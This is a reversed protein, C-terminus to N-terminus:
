NKNYLPLITFYNFINHFKRESDKNKKESFIFVKSTEHEREPKDLEHLM